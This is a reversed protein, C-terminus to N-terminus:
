ALHPRKAPSHRNQFTKMDEILWEGLKAQLKRKTHAWYQTLLGLGLLVVTLFIALGETVVASWNIHEVNAVVTSWEVSFPLSVAALLSSISAGLAAWGFAELQAVPEKMEAIREQLKNWNALPVPLVEQASPTQLIYDQRIIAYNDDM